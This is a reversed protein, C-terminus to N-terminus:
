TQAAGVLTDLLVTSADVSSDIETVIGGEEGSSGTDTQQAAASMPAVAGPWDHGVGTVSYLAVTRGDACKPWTVRASTESLQEISYEEACGAREAWAATDSLVDGLYYGATDADFGDPVTFPVAADDNDHFAVVSVPPGECPRVLNIGAVPAVGAFRPLACTLWMAFGAGNGFGTGYLRNEDVCVRRGLDYLVAEVFRVDDAGPVGPIAWDSQPAVPVPAVLVVGRDAALDSLQAAADTAAPDLESGAFLFVAPSAAESSVLEPVSLLYSREVGDVDIPVASVGAPPPPNDGTCAPPLARADSATCGALAAMLVLSASAARWRRGRSAHGARSEMGGRRTM